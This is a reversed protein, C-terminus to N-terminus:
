DSDTDSDSDTYSDSDTDSDSNLSFIRPDSEAFFSPDLFDKCKLHLIFCSYDKLM